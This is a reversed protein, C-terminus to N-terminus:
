EGLIRKKQAEFEENTVVGKNRLEALKALKDVPDEGLTPHAAQAQAMASAQAAKAKEWMRAEFGQPDSMAESILDQVSGGTFQELAAEQQPDLHSAVMQAIAQAQPVDGRDITVRSHDDPDYLVPVTQGVRPASLQPWAQEIDIDFQEAGDPMVRLKVKWMQGTNGVVAPPGVTVALNTGEVTLVEANAKSQTM